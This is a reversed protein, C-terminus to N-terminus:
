PLSLCVTMQTFKGTSNLEFTTSKFANLGLGNQKDTISMVLTGTGIVCSQSGSLLSFHDLTGIADFPDWYAYFLSGDEFATGIGYCPWQQLM